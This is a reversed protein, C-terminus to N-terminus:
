KNIRHIRHIRHIQNIRHIRIHLYIKIEIIDFNDAELIVLFNFFM